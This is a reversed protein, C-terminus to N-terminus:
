NLLKPDRRCKPRHNAFNGPVKALPKIRETTLAREMRSQINSRVIAIGHAGRRVSGDRVGILAASVATEDHDVVTKAHGGPVPVKGAKLM